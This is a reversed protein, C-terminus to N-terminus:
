LVQRRIVVSFTDATYTIPGSDANETPYNIEARLIGSFRIKRQGPQEFFSWTDSSQAKLTALEFTLLQWAEVLQPVLNSAPHASLYEINVVGERGQATAIRQGLQNLLFWQWRGGQPTEDCQTVVMLRSQEAKWSLAWQQQSAPPCVAPVIAALTPLRKFLSCSSVGCILILPVMYTYITKM